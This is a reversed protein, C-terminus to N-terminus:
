GTGLDVGHRDFAQWLLELSAEYRKWRGVSRDHIPERIQILSATRVVRPTSHFDLCTPSWELGVFEILRRAGAELDRVLEEYSVDLSPTADIRRWHELIRQHDAFRRAIHDWDNTWLNTTFGTQRCSVAVDRLDRNCVIVRAKPFLLAILGLLRSNDPM